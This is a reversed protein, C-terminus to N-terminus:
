SLRNPRRRRSTAVSAGADRAQRSASAYADCQPAGAFRDESRGGKHLTQIQRALEIAQKRLERNEAELREILTWDHRRGRAKPDTRRGGGRTPAMELVSASKKGNSLSARAIRSM